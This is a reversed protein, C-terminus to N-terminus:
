KRPEGKKKDKGNKAKLAKKKSEFYKCFGDIAEAYLECLEAKNIQSSKKSM